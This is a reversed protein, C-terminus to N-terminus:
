AKLQFAAGFYILPTALHCFSVVCSRDHAQALAILARIPLFFMAGIQVRAFCGEPSETVGINMAWAM